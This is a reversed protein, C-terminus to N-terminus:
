SAKCFAVYVSDPLPRALYYNFFKKAFVVLMQSECPTDLLAQSWRYISLRNVNPTSMKLRGAATKAAAELTAEEPRLEEVLTKWFRVSVQAEEEIELVYFAFYPFEPASAPLFTNHSKSSSLWAM